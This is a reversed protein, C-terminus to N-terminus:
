GGGGGALNKISALVTLAVILGFLYAPQQLVNKTRVIFRSWATSCYNLM